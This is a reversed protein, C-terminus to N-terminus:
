FQDRMTEATPGSARAIWYSEAGPDRKLRLLDKGRLRMVLGTPVIVGYFLLGMVIPDVVTHLLLGLKIWLRNLPHLLSPRIWAAVLFLVAASLTWPWLRGFHWGNLLSLLALVGAMVGGFRRNSGPLSPEDRTFSEHTSQKM